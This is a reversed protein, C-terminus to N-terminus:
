GEEESAITSQRSKPRVVLIQCSARAELQELSRHTRTFSPDDEPPLAVVIKSIKHNKSFEEVVHLFRGEAYHYEAEVTLGGEQDLMSTIKERIRRFSLNEPPSTRRKSLTPPDFVFLFFVKSQTRKALKIAYYCADRWRTTNNELPVLITNM